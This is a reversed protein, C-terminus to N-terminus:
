EEMKQVRESINAAAVSFHQNCSGRRAGAILRAKRIIQRPSKKFASFLARGGRDRHPENRPQGTSLECKERPEAGCTPCRVAPVQKPSLETKLSASMISHWVLMMM